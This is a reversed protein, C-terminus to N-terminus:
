KRLEAAGRTVKPILDPPAGRSLHKSAVKLSHRNSYLTEAKGHVCSRNHAIFNLAAKTGFEIYKCGVSVWASTEITEAIM